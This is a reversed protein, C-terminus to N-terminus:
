RAPFKVFEAPAPDMDVTPFTLFPIIVNLPAPIWINFIGIALAAIHAFYTTLAPLVNFNAEFKVNFLASTAVWISQTPSSVTFPVTSKSVNWTVWDPPTVPKAFTLKFEPAVKIVAFEPPTSPETEKVLIM